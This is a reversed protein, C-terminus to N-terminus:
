QFVIPLGIARRATFPLIPAAIHVFRNDITWAETMAISGTSISTSGSAEFAGPPVDIDFRETQSGGPTIGQSSAQNFCDVIMGNAVGIVNISSPSGTDGNNTGHTGLPSANDVGNMRFAAVLVDTAASYTLALTNSGNAPEASTYWLDVRNDAGGSRLVTALQTLSVGNYTVATVTTPQTTSELMVCVALFRNSGSTVVAFSSSSVAGEGNAGNTTVGDLGVAGWAPCDLLLYFIALFLKRM